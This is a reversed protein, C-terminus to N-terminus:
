ESVLENGWSCVEIKRFFKFFHKPLKYDLTIEKLSFFHFSYMSFTSEWSFCQRATHRQAAQKVEPHRMQLYHCRVQNSTALQHGCGATSIGQKGLMNKFRPFKM